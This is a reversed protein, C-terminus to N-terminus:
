LVFWFHIKTCHTPPAEIKGSYLSKLHVFICIHLATRLFQLDINYFPVIFNVINLTKLYILHNSKFLSLSKFNGGEKVATKHQSFEDVWVTQCYCCYHYQFYYQNLATPQRLKHNRWMPLMEKSHVSSHVSITKKGRM